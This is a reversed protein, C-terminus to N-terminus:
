YHKPHFFQLLCPNGFLVRRWGADVGSGYWSRVEPDKSYFSHSPDAQLSLPHRGLAPPHAPLILASATAGARFGDGM